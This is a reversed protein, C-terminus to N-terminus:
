LDRGEIMQEREWHRLRAKRRPWDPMVGTMASWFSDSHNRVVLHCAEHAVVYEMVESPAQVLRWNIRMVGDKSCSGWLTKPNSLRVAKPTVGLKASYTRAWRRADTDARDRMWGHLAARVADPWDEPPLDRPVQVLFRGRCEVEVRSVDAASIALGLRRGRYLLSSGDEYRQQLGSGRREEMRRVADLIWYRKDHVFRDVGHPGDRRAGAPAVVEVGEPKVIVRLRKARASYRLAWVISTGDVDM